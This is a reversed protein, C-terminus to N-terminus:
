CAGLVDRSSRSTSRTQRAPVKQLHDLLLSGEYWPMFASRAAVSDGLVASVPIAVADRFGFREALSIFETEIDRFRAESWDVLDMKNVALVVRAVGMLHLIAAHRRTQVKVGTRADVLLIAVDAHSAGTAMNRTYQEHGPSDIIM